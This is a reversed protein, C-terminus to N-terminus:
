QRFKKIFPTSIEQPLLGKCNKLSLIRMSLFLLNLTVIGAVFLMAEVCNLGAIAACVMHTHSKRETTTFIM